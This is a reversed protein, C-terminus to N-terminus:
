FTSLMWIECCWIYTKLKFMSTSLQGGTTVSVATRFNRVTKIIFILTFLCHMRNQRRWKVNGHRQRFQVVNKVQKMMASVASDTLTPPFKLFIGFVFILISLRCILDKPSNWPTWFSFGFALSPTSREWESLIYVAVRGCMLCINNGFFGDNADEGSLKSLNKAPMASVM